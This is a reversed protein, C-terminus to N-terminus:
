SPGTGDHSVDSLLFIERGRKGKKNTVPNCEPHQLDVAVLAIHGWGRLGFRFSRYYSYHRIMELCTCEKELLLVGRVLSQMHEDDPLIWSHFAEELLNMAERVGEESGDVPLFLVYEHQERAFAVFQRSGVYREDRQHFRAVLPVTKSLSSDERTLDYYAEFRPAIQKIYTTVDM